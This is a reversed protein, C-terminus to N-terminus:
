RFKEGVYHIFVDELNPKEVSISKVKIGHMALVELLKPLILESKNVYIRMTEMYTKGKLYSEAAEKALRRSYKELEERSMSMAKEVPIRVIVADKDKEANKYEEPVQGALVYVKPKKLEKSPSVNKVELIGPMKEISEIVNRMSKETALEIVEGGKISDKLTKPSGEVMIKGKNIIAVSDCYEDAEEMDHTAVLVTTEAEKNLEKVNEWFSRKALPDLGATPEDMILIQSRCILARALALKRRMGGSYNFITKDAVDELGLTELAQKIRKKREYSPIKFIKAFLELNDRGTLLMDMGSFQCVVAIKERVKESEKVTNYGCVYAEGEDPPLLTSLINILTTKGAGNPGLLGFIEGKEIELNINSLAVTDGFRKSINVTKIAISMDIM